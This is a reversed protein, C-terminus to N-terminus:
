ESSINPEWFYNKFHVIQDNEVQIGESELLQQM